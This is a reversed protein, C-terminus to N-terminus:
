ISMRLDDSFNHEKDEGCYKYAMQKIFHKVKWNVTDERFPFVLMDKKSVHLFPRFDIVACRSNHKEKTMKKTSFYLCAQTKTRVHSTPPTIPHNYSFGFAKVDSWSLFYTANLEIHKIGDSNVIFKFRKKRLFEICHPWILLWSFLIIFLIPVFWQEPPIVTYLHCSMIVFFLGMLLAAGRGSLDKKSLPHLEIVLSDDSFTFRYNETEIIEKSNL